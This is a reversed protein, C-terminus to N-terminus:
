PCHRMVEGILEDETRMAKNYAIDKRWEELKDLNSQRTPRNPENVERWDRKIPLFVERGRRRCYYKYFVVTHDDKMEEMGAQYLALGFELEKELEVTTM